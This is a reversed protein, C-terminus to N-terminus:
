LNERGARGCLERPCMKSVAARTGTTNLESRLSLDCVELEICETSEVGKRVMGLLGSTEHGEGGTTVGGSLSLIHWTKVWFWILVLHLTTPLIGPM